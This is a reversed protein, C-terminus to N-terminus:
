APPGLADLALDIAASLPLNRGDDALPILRNWGLTHSLRDRAAAIRGIWFTELGLDGRETIAEAVGLLTAARDLAAPTTTTAAIELAGIVPLLAPIVLNLRRAAGLAARMVARAEDQHGADLLAIALVGQTTAQNILGGSESVLRVADRLQPVAADLDGQFLLTRGLLLAIGWIDREPSAVRLLDVADRLQRQRERDPIGRVHADAWRLGTAFPILDAQNMTAALREFRTIWPRAQGYDGTLQLMRAKWFISWLFWFSSAAPGTEAASIVTDLSVLAERQRGRYEWFPRLRCVAELTPVLDPLPAAFAARINALDAEVADLAPLPTMGDLAIGQRVAFAVFWRAHALRVAAEEDADRLRSRAFMRVPELMRFREPADPEARIFQGSALAALSRELGPQGAAAAVGAASETTFGGSFIGLLRLLRQGDSTLRRESWALAREMSSFRAPGDRQGLSLADIGSRELLAALSAPPIGPLQAAALEIALPMGDLMTVIRAAASITADDPSVIGAARLFLEVAPNAATAAPDGAAPVPLPDIALVNEGAIRITERSTAIITQTPAQALLAAIAPAADLLHEINDLILLLPRKGVVDSIRQLLSIGAQGPIGAARAIAPMVDAPDAIDDLAAWVALGGTSQRRHAIERAITTKGMGGAGALTVIRTGSSLRREIETIEAARGIIPGSAAPLPTTAITPPRHPLRQTKIAALFQERPLGALGLANALLEGSASQPTRRKSRELDSVTRVSVGAAIALEEQTLGAARRHMRLQLAFPAAQPSEDPPPLSALAM